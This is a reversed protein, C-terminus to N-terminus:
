EDIPVPVWCYHSVSQEGVVYGRSIRYVWVGPTPDDHDVEERFPIKKIGYQGYYTLRDFFIFESMEDLPVDDEMGDLPGGMLVTKCLDNM